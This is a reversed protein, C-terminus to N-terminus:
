QADYFINETGLRFGSFVTGPVGAYGEVPNIRKYVGQMGGSQQMGGIDGGDTTSRVIVGAVNVTMFPWSTAGPASDLIYVDGPQANTFDPTSFDCSGNQYSKPGCVSFVRDVRSGSRGPACVAGGLATFCINSFMGVADTSPVRMAQLPGFRSRSRAIRGTSADDFNIGIATPNPSNHILTADVNAHSNEVQIGNAQAHDIFIGSLLASAHQVLIGHTPSNRVRSDWVEVGSVDAIRIQCGRVDVNVLRSSSKMVVADPATCYIIADRMTEGSAIVIDAARPTDSWIQLACVSFLCWLIYRMSSEKKATGIGGVANM